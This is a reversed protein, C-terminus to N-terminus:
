ENEINNSTKKNEELAYKVHFFGFIWGIIPVNFYISLLISWKWYDKKMPANDLPSMSGMTFLFMFISILIWTAFVSLLWGFIIM